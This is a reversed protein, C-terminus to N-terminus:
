VASWWRGWNGGVVVAPGAFLMAGLLTTRQEGLAALLSGHLRVLAAALSTVVIVLVTSGVAEATSYPRRSALLRPLMLEGLGVAIVGLLIGGALAVGREGPFADSIAKEGEGRPGALLSPSRPRWVLHRLMRVGCGFVLVGFLLILWSVDITPSLYGGLLAAPVTFPLYHGIVRRNFTGQHLNRVVGSGYGCLMTALTMWFALPPDFKAWLMYVPVWFNGASVGSSMALVAISLGVPLLYWYDLSM